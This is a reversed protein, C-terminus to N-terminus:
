VCFRLRAIKGFSRLTRAPGPALPGDQAFANIGNVHSQEFYDRFVLHQGDFRGFAQLLPLVLETGHVSETRENDTALRVFDANDRDM